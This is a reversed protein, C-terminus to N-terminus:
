KTAGPTATSGHAVSVTDDSRTLPQYPCLIARAKVCIIFFFYIHYFITHQIYIYIYVHVCVCVCM